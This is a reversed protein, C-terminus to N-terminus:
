PTTKKNVSYVSDAGAARAQAIAPTYDPRGPETSMVDPQDDAGNDFRYVRATLDADILEAMKPVAVLGEDSARDGDSVDTQIYYVDAGDVLARHMRFTVFGFSGAWEDSTLAFDVVDDILVAGEPETETETEPETETETETGPETETETGPDTGPDAGDDDDAGSCGALTIV